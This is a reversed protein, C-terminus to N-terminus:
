VAVHQWTEYRQSYQSGRAIRETYTVEMGHSLQYISTYPDNSDFLVFLDVVSTSTSVHSVVAIMFDGLTPRPVNGM